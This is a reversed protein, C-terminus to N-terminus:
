KKAKNILDELISIADIVRPGTRLFIDQQQKTMVFINNNKGAPTKKFRLKDKFNKGPEYLLIIIDPKKSIITEDSVKPYEQKSYNLINEAGARKIIDNIFSVGGVSMMPKDWLEVYIRINRAKRVKSLTEFKKIKEFCTKCGLIFSLLNMNEIIGDIDPPYLVLVPINLNELNKIAKKQIGGGSIVLDPNLKLIKEIDPNLFTGAKDKSVTEKPYNCNVSIAKLKDEGGLFYIMETHAPSLSVVSSVPLKLEVKRGVDDIITEAYLIFSFYLFIAQLLVMRIKM